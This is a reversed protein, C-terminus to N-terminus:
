DGADFAELRSAPAEPRSDGHRTLSMTIFSLGVMLAAYPFLTFYGVHELLFGSAIPTIIQAAMSFTYYYGTYKGITSGKSMEVVMPYSNVNILAWAFGILVFLAYAWVTATHFFCAACLCVTLLAVGLLIMRKRGFRSSLVGVPLYSIVAGGTAIMMCASAMSLSMGWEQTAYKSFATSVANYGMFWLAISFLLLILSRRVDRPLAEGEAEGRANDAAPQEEEPLAARLKNERVFACLVGVSVLMVAAIFAYAPAYDARGDAGAGVMFSTAGLACIGGLAGALNIIANAKSRLPKPTVDPMLAVAPSRYVSMALLLAGLTCIFPTFAARGNELPLLVTLVSACLTGLVIYPMRRGMRTRTRDSLHGFLPLMFLALLNDMAMIVGAVDDGMHFTDRLMLPVTTDYLQWFACISFFALGILLTRPYNLKM